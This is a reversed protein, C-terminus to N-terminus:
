IIDNDVTAAGRLSKFGKSRSVRLGQSQVALADSLVLKQGKGKFGRIQDVTLSSMLMRAENDHDYECHCHM